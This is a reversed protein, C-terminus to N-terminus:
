AGVGAACDGRMDMGGRDDPQVRRAGLSILVLKTVIVLIIAVLPLLLTLTLCADLM